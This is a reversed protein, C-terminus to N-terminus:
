LMMVEMPEVKGNGGKKVEEIEQKEVECNVQTMVESSGDKRVESSEQKEVANGDKKKLQHSDQTKVRNEQREIECKDQIEVEPGGEKTGELSDPTEAKHTEQQNSQRLEALVKELEEITCDEELLIKLKRKRGRLEVGEIEDSEDDGSKTYNAAYKKSQTQESLVFRELFTLAMNLDCEEERLYRLIAQEPLQTLSRASIETGSQAHVNGSRILKVLALLRSGARKDGAYTLYDAELYPPLVELSQIVGRTILNQTRVRLIEYQSALSPPDVSRKLGCRDLFASDLFEPTNSTCLFILNSYRRTRDLGTLLSNTARLSDQSEARKMVEQRSGAITEVEDILVCVFREPHEQCIRSIKTFIQDV